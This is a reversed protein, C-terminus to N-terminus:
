ENYVAGRNVTQRLNKTRDCGQATLRRAAHPVTHVGRPGRVAGGASGGPGTGATGEEASVSLRSPWSARASLVVPQGRETLHVLLRPSPAEPGRPLSGTRRAVTLM